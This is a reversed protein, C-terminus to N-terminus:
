QHSLPSSMRIGFFSVPTNCKRQLASQLEYDLRARNMAQNFRVDSTGVGLARLLGMIWLKESKWLRRRRSQEDPLSVAASAEDLSGLIVNWLEEDADYEYILKDCLSLFSAVYGHALLHSAVTPYEEESVVGALIAGGKGLIFSIRARAFSHLFNGQKTVNKRAGRVKATVKGFDRTFFSALLDHEGSERVTLLIADTTYM